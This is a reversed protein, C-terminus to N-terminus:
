QVSRKKASTLFTSVEGWWPAGPSYPLTNHGAYAEVYLWKPGSYSDYLQQGLESTVVEDRGALLFAVPGGYYSLAERSDYRETLLTRVPLFPYHHAAVDVLSSFPTVLLLGAVEDPFKSALFSAVGSGLSEGTIFVPRSDVALLAELAQTAAAQFSVESPTGERAGYGPYEFLFVDWHDGLARLGTVFYDRNLAYGANGHFVLMRYRAKPDGPSKWGIVEGANDRWAQLGMRSALESLVDAQAKSPFYILQRQLATLMFFAGLAFIVATLKRWLSKRLNLM